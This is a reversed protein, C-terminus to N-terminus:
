LSRRHLEIPCTDIEEVQHDRLPNLKTYNNFMKASKECMSTAVLCEKGTKGCCIIGHNQLLILKPFYGEKSIFEDLSHSIKETLKKGPMEYPVVCSKRGNRVVQDPFYRAEAFEFIKHSCLITLTEPPHTHLVFNVDNYGYLMAHFYMEMSPKKKMNSLQVCDLSCVVLDKKSLSFLDCGSAKILFKERGSLVSSM